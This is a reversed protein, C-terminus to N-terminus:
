RLSVQVPKLGQELLGTIAEEIRALMAEGSLAEIDGADHIVERTVERGSESFCNSAESFLAARILPPAEAAGRLFSSMEDWPIGILAPKM